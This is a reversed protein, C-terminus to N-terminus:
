PTVVRYAQQIDVIRYMNTISGVALKDQLGYYDICIGCTLIETGQEELAKLDDLVPSDEATLLAGSHYFLIKKPLNELETLAFIYSKMLTKGLNEDGSGLSDKNLVIVYNPDSANRETDNLKSPHTTPQPNRTDETTAAASQKHSLLVDYNEPSHQTVDVSMKLQEAMKSLNQTAIKNDVTIMIDETPNEKLARKTLITPMPCAQGLADIKKM